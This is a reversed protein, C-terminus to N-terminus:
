VLEPIHLHALALEYEHVDLVQMGLEDTSARRLEEGTSRSADLAARNDFAVAM